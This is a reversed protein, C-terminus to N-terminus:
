SDVLALLPIRRGGGLNHTQFLNLLPIFKNLVGNWRQENKAREPDNAPLVYETLPNQETNKEIAGMELLEDVADTYELADKKIIGNSKDAILLLAPDTLGRLSDVFTAQRDDSAYIRRVTAPSNAIHNLVETLLARYDKDEKCSNIRRRPMDVILEAVELSLLDRNEKAMRGVKAWIDIQNLMNMLNDEDLPLMINESVRLNHVERGMAQATKQVSITFGNENGWQGQPDVVLAFHDPHAFMNILMKSTFDTKGSGTKGVIAISSAGRSGGFYPLIMPAVIDKAGRLNGISSIINDGKTLKTAFMEHIDKQSAIYVNTSSSPSTPLPRQGTWQGAANRCFTAIVHLEVTRNDRGSLIEKSESGYIDSTLNMLAESAARPSDNSTTVEHVFGLARYTELEETVVDFYVLKDKIEILGNDRLINIQIKQTTSPTGTRGIVKNEM